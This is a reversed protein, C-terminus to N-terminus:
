VELEDEVGRGPKDVEGMMQKDGRSGVLGKVAYKNSLLHIEKLVSGIVHLATWLKEM